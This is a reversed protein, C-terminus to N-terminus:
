SNQLKEAFEKFINRTKEIIGCVPTKIKRLRLFLITYNEACLAKSKTDDIIDYL